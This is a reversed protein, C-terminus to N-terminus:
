APSPGCGLPRPRWRRSRPCGWPSNCRQVQDALQSAAHQIEGSTSCVYCTYARAAPHTTDRPNFLQRCILMASLGVLRLSPSSDSLFWARLPAPDEGAARLSVSQAQHARTTCCTNATAKPAELIGVHSYLPQHTSLQQLPALLPMRRWTTLLAAEMAQPSPTCDSTGWGAWPLPPAQPSRSLHVCM